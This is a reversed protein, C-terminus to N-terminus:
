HVRFILLPNPRKFGFFLTAVLQCFSGTGRSLTQTFGTGVPGDTEKETGGPRGGM